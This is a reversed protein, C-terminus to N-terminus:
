WREATDVGLEDPGHKVGNELVGQAANVALTENRRIAIYGAIIQAQLEVNQESLQFANLHKESEIRLHEEIQELEKVRFELEQVRAGLNASMDFVDSQIQRNEKRLKACEAKLKATKEDRKPLIQM